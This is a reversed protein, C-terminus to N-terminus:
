SRLSEGHENSQVSYIIKTSGVAINKWPHPRLIAMSFLILYLYLRFSLAKPVM